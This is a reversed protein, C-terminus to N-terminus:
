LIRLLARRHFLSIDSGFYLYVWPLYVWPRGGNGMLYLKRANAPALFALSSRVSEGPQVSVDADVFSAEQRLPYRRGQDDLVYFFDKAQEAPLHHPHSSDVFIRVEATYLIDPGSPTANVQKVGLCWLDYCYSDGINVITGPTLLSVLVLAALYPVVIAACVRGARAAQHFKRDHIGFLAALSPIAAAVFVLFGAWAGANSAERFVLDNGPTLHYSWQGAWWSATGIVALALLAALGNKLWPRALMLFAAKVIVAIARSREVYSALLCGGAWTLAKMDNEIQPLEHQIAKAWPGRASPLVWVAHEM